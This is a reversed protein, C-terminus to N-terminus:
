GRPGNKVLGGAPGEVFRPDPQPFESEPGNAGDPRNDGNMADRLSAVATEFTAQGADLGQTPSQPDAFAIGAGALLLAGIVGVILSRRMRSSMQM